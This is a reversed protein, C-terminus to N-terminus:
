SDCTVSYKEQAMNVPMMSCRPVMERRSVPGAPPLSVTCAGERALLRATEALMATFPQQRVMTWWSWSCKEASREGSVRELVEKGDRLGPARTLRSCGRVAPQTGPDADAFGPDFLSNPPWKTKPWTSAVPRTAWRVCSPSEHSKPTWIGASKAGYMMDLPDMVTSPMLRVTARQCLWRASIATM